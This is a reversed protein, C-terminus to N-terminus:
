IESFFPWQDGLLNLFLGNEHNVVDRFRKRCITVGSPDVLQIILNESGMRHLLKPPTIAVVFGNSAVRHTADATFACEQILMSKSLEIQKTMVIGLIAFSM